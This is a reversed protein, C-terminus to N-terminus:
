TINRKNKRLKAMMLRATSVLKKRPRKVTFGVKPLVKRTKGLVKAFYYNMVQNRHLKVVVASYIMM